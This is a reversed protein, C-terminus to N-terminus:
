ASIEDEEDDSPNYSEDTKDDDEVLQLSSAGLNVLGVWKQVLMNGFFYALALHLLNSFDGGHIIRCHDMAQPRIEFQNCVTDFNWDLDEDISKKNSDVTISNENDPIGLISALRETDLIISVEKVISIITQLDKNTKHTM